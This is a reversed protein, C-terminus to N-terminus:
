LLDKHLKNIIQARQEERAITFGTNIFKQNQLFKFNYDSFAERIKEIKHHTSTVAVLALNQNQLSIEHPWCNELSNLHDPNLPSLVSFTQDDNEELHIFEHPTINQKLLTKKFVELASIRDHSSISFEAVNHLSNIATFDQSAQASVKTGFTHSGCLGITLPVNLKKALAIAKTHLVKAGFFCLEYLHDYNIQEIIKAESCLHPDASMLGHVDKLIECKESKFHAAISVASTDSGGRGLTTIEKTLPNVGQFGAIVIVKNENLSQEVRFPKIEIINANNHDSSTLIGAQSGTFSIAPVGLDNIALSLLSMSVREGSSILMDLERPIPNKSVKHALSSLQDTTDGMASVIAIVRQGEKQLKAISRAIAKIQDTTKLSSGGYKQVIINTM